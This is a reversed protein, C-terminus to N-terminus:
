TNILRNPLFICMNFQLSFKKRHSYSRITIREVLLFANINQFTLSLYFVQLCGGRDRLHTVKGEKVFLLPFKYDM